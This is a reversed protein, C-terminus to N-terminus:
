DRQDAAAAAAGSRRRQRRPEATAPEGGARGTGRGRRAAGRDRGAGVPRAFLYGQGLPLRPRGALPGARRARDGRRRGRARADPRARHHGPRDALGSAAADVGVVFSRDIKLIDIPFRELYSLSSYGTGFDDIALHVGLAACPRRAPRDDGATRQMLGSETIELILSAPPLGTESSSRGSTSSSTPSAPVPPGVPQRQDPADPRELRIQWDRAQRCAERLIWRGIPVIDGTEEALDIFEGPMLVPRGPPQWRVLAEVGSSRAADRARRDAPLRAPARRAGRRRPAASPATAGSPRGTACARGSSRPAPRAVVHKAAYMAVDANRLLDDATEAGAAAIRSASARRSASRRRTSRRGAPAAVRRAADRGRARRGRRRRGRPAGRVRRRRPPRRHRRAPPRRSAREAVAGLIEDGRAHGLRTTSRGQLRRPRHVPGRAAGGSRRSREVAHEVRDRFLVRNALGTLGDHLAQHRIEDYLRANELAMAAEGALMTALEVTATASRAAAPGVTVEILASRGAPRSSRSWRWRASGSRTRPLAVEDPDRPRTTSTSGPPGSTELVARTAPYDDVAYRRTRARRAARAPLLRAHRGPEDAPGLLEARLRRRRRGPRHPRRDPRRRAASGADPRPRGSM